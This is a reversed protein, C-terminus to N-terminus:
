KEGGLMPAATVYAPTGVAVLDRQFQALGDLKKIVINM